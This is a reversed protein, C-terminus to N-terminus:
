VGTGAAMVSGCPVRWMGEFNFTIIAPVQAPILLSYVDLQIESGAPYLIPPCPWVSTYDRCTSNLFWDMVPNTSLQNKVSDYLMVKVAGFADTVATSGTLQQTINIRYLEFDNDNIPLIFRRYTDLVQYAAALRGTWDVTVAITYIFPVPRYNYTTDQKLNDNFVRVGQFALQSTYNPISGGVGYANGTKAVTILDFDFISGADYVMYPAFIYDHPIVTNASFRQRHINDRWQMQAAVQPRGALRHLHFESDTYTPYGLNMYDIGDTLAMGTQGISDADFIYFFPM